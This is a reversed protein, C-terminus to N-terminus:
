FAMPYPKPKKRKPREPKPARPKPTRVKPKKPKRTGPMPGKFALWPAPLYALFPNPHM